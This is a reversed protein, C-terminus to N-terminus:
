YQLLNDGYDPLRESRFQSIVVDMEKTTEVLIDKLSEIGEAKYKFTYIIGDSNKRINVITYTGPPFKPNKRKLHKAAQSTITQIPPSRYVTFATGVIYHM